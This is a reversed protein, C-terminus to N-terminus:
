GALNCGKNVAKKFDKEVATKFSAFVEETENSADYILYAPAIIIGLNTQDYSRQDPVEGCDRVIHVIAAKAGEVGWLRKVEQVGRWCHRHRRHEPGYKKFLEDMWRNVDEHKNGLIRECDRCHDEFKAMTVKFADPLPIIPSSGVLTERGRRGNRWM